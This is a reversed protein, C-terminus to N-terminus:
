GKIRVAESYRITTISKFAGIVRSLNPNIGDATRTWEGEILHMGLLVIGHFHNPLVVYFDIDVRPFRQPLMLWENNILNGADNLVVKGDVTNGFLCVGNNTCFTVFYAGSTKYDHFGSRLQKRSQFRNLSNAV